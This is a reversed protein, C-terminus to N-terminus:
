ALRHTLEILAKKTIVLKHARLVQYMNTNKALNFDLFEINGLALKLNNDITDLLLLLNKLPKIKLNILLKVVEKTKPSTISFSDLVVLNNEKLKACLASKLALKRIKEPVNYSYDRPHPGFVVGGHRWLPSRTSGVRARGTGKQKWPKRGSGSVEARTKTSAAGERKNALHQHVARYISGKSVHGNFVKADLEIEESGKHLLNLLQVKIKEKNKEKEKSKNM